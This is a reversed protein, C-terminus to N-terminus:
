STFAEPNGEGSRWRAHLMRERGQMDKRLVTHWGLAEYYQRTAEAHDMHLELFVSGGPRLKLAAFAAIAKYFQLPDHDTVFLALHPEYDLVHAAMSEQEPLTIYPPNSVIIDTGPWQDWSERQLIDAQLWELSLGLAGANHGAVALAGESLDAAYVTASDLHKKLALALCGSGAGIDVATVGPKENWEKIIWDALEETEPRPILVREDVFLKMDLFYCEGLVYQVPRQTMLSRSYAELQQQQEPNLMAGPQALWASRRYGTVAEIVWGAINASESEDYITTLQQTLQRFAAETELSM